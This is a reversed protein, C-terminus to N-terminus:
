SELLPHIGTIKILSDVFEKVSHYLFYPLSFTDQLSRNNFQSNLSTPLVIDDLYALIMEGGRFCAYLFEFNCYRSDIFPESIFFLACHCNRIKYEHLDRFDVFLLIEEDFWIRIGYEQLLNIIPLVRDRDKRSFSIYIYPDQDVGLVSLSGPEANVKLAPYAKYICQTIERFTQDPLAFYPFIQYNQLMFSYSPSLAFEEIMVPLIFKGSSIAQKLESKVWPSAEVNESLVLLFFHCDDIAQPIEDVYDTGLHIDRCAIWCDIGISELRKVFALSLTQVESKYSVFVTAM